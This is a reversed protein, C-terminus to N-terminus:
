VCGEFSDFTGGRNMICPSIPEAEFQDEIDFTNAFVPLFAIKLLSSSTATQFIPETFKKSNKCM